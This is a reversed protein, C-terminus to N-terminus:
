RRSRELKVQRAPKDKRLGKFSPHRVRGDRTWATFAVEAVLKPEVWRADARM